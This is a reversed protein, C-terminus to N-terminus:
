HCQPLAGVLTALNQPFHGAFSQCKAKCTTHLNQLTGLEEHLGQLVEMSRAKDSHTLVLMADTEDTHESVKELSRKLTDQRKELDAIMEGYTHMERYCKWALNFYRHSITYLLVFGGTVCLLLILLFSSEAGIGSRSANLTHSVNEIGNEEPLMGLRLAIYAFLLLLILIGATELTYGRRPSQPPTSEKLTRDLKAAQTQNLIGKAKLAAIRAEYNM